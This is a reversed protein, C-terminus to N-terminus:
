KWIDEGFTFVDIELTDPNQSDYTKDMTHLLLAPKDGIASYGHWIGPPTKILMLNEEGFDYTEVIQMKNPPTPIDKVAVYRMNGSICITYDTQDKHLHLGKIVGPNVMSILTQGCKGSFIKDDNRLIEYLYGEHALDIRNIKKLEVLHSM